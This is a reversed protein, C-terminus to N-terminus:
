EILMRTQCKDIPMVALHKLFKTTRYVEGARFAPKGDDAETLYETGRVTGPLMGSPLYQMWFTWVAIGLDRFRKDPHMLTKSNGRITVEHPGTYDWSPVFIVSMTGMDGQCGLM